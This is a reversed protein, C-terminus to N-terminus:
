KTPSLVRMFVGLIESLCMSGSPYKLASIKAEGTCSNEWSVVWDTACSFRESDTISGVEEFASAVVVARDPFMTESVGGLVVRDLRLAGSSETSGTGLLTRRVRAM